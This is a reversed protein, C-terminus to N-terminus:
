HCPLEVQRVDLRQGDEISPCRLRRHLVTNLLRLVCEVLELDISDPHKGARDQQDVWTQVADPFEETFATVAENLQVLSPM